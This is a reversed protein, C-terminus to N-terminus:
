NIDGRGGFAAQLVQLLHRDPLYGHIYGKEEHGLKILWTLSNISSPVAALNWGWPSLLEATPSTVSVIQMNETHMCYAYIYVCM